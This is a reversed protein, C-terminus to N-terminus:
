EPQHIQILMKNTFELLPFSLLDRSFTGVRNMAWISHTNLYLLLQYSLGKCFRSRRLCYCQKENQPSKRIIKERLLYVFKEEMGSIRWRQRPQPHLHAIDSNIRLSM